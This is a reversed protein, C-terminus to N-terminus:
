EPDVIQHTHDSTIEICANFLQVEFPVTAQTPHAKSASMSINTGKKNTANAMSRVADQAQNVTIFM